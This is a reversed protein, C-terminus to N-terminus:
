PFLVYSLINHKASKLTNDALENSIFFYPNYPSINTIKVEVLQFNHNIIDITCILLM